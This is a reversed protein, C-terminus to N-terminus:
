VLDLVPLCIVHRPVWCNLLEFYLLMNLMLRYTSRYYKFSMYHYLTILEKGWSTRFFSNIDQVKMGQQIM